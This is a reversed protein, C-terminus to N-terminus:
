TQIGVNKAGFFKYGEKEPRDKKKPNFMRKALSLELQCDFQVSIAKNDCNSQGDMWGGLFSVELEGLISFPATKSNASALRLKYAALFPQEDPSKGM